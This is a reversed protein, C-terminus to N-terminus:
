HPATSTTAPVSILKTILRINVDVDNGVFLPDVSHKWTIGYDRRDLRTQAAFGLVIANKDPVNQKGTQRFPLAIEKSVGHMTLTGHAVFGDSSKEIRSSVFKLEPYKEVDFFDASRLHKDRDAIGTDISAARITASVSSNALDDPDYAVDITFDTFKGEVESMGGAIPIRFGITSHNTDFRNVTLPAASSSAALILLTAAPLFRMRPM